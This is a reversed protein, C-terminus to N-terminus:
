QAAVKIEDILGGFIPRYKTYVKESANRFAETDAENIEILEGLKELQSGEIRGVENRMWIAVEKAAEKLIEQCKPELRDYIKKSMVLPESVHIHNTLSLYKQVEYFKKTLVHAVPNEQGDVTRLQMASYLEGFSMPTASAGYINFTDVFVAGGPTRIKLGKLDEPIYIARKSNTIHRFGNEWYALVVLGKVELKRSLEEGIKGDLVRSVHEIDKFIFPLNLAGMIPEFSSLLVDSTLVLDISGLQAGEVLERQTGLQDAPFIKIEIVGDSKEAVIDRFMLSGEHYHHTLSGTHGLKLIVKDNDAWSTSALLLLFLVCFLVVLIRKFGFM